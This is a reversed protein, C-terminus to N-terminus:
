GDPLDEEDSDASQSNKLLGERRLSSGLRVLDSRIPPKGHQPTVREKCGQDEHAERREVSVGISPNGKHDAIGFVLM